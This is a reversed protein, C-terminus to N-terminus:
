KLFRRFNTAVSIFKSSLFFLKKIKPRLTYAAFEQKETITFCPIINHTDVEYMICDLNESVKQRWRRGIRLPSFDTVVASPNINKSFEILKEQPDGELLFFSIGLKRLDEEVEMLGKLMFDYQRLTAELFKPNLSFVVALPLDKERALEQAYLLAWNDLVRQDRSMWYIVPGKDKFSLQNLTKVRRSDVKMM